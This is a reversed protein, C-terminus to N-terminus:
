IRLEHPALVDGGRRDRFLFVDSTGAGQAFALRLFTEILDDFAPEGFVVFLNAQHFLREDLFVGGSNGIHDLALDRLEAFVNRHRTEDAVFHAIGGCGFFSGSFLGTLAGAARPSVMGRYWRMRRLS